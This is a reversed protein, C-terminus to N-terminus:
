DAALYQDPSVPLEYSIGEPFFPDPNVAIERAALFQAYYNRSAFGFAPGDYEEVIRVFDRGVRNQARKMGGIGHNYSTLASPWDGLKGYAYSLYRAAGNASAFPDLRRDVADNGPMFTQAAAKTFQWMGVAGASSRAAPQFSSEVHPLYALEEPLGADRFIKRFQLNYRGSIELGRKFREKTGRQARVRDSAGPLIATLPRGSSELKAILQKDQADLPANFRLKSELGALRAKWFDRRENMVQKQESTLGEAVYGPLTAVEYIVDMYRDDHYAVESRQWVAYTKRWFEVAPELAGPKPFIGSYTLTSYRRNLDPAQKPAIARYQTAKDRKAVPATSSCANLLLLVFPLLVLKILIRNM